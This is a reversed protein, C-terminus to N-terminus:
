RDDSKGMDWRKQRLGNYRQDSMLTKWVDINQVYM